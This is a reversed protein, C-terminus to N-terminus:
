ETIMVFVAVVQTLVDAEPVTVMLGSGVEVTFSAVTHAPAGAVTVADGPTAPEYLKAHVTGAPAAAGPLTAVNVV